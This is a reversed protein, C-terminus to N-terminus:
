NSSKGRLGGNESKEKGHKITNRTSAGFLPNVGQSKSFFVKLLDMGHSDLCLCILVEAYHSEYHIYVIM